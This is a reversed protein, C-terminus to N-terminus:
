CVKQIRIPLYIWCMAQLGQSSAILLQKPLRVAEYAWGKLSSIPSMGRQSEPISSRRVWHLLVRRHFHLPARPFARALRRLTSPAGQSLWNMFFVVLDAKFWCSRM